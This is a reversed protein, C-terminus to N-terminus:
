RITELFATPLALRAGDAEAIAKATAIQRATFRNLVGTTIREHALGFRIAWETTPFEERQQEITDLISLVAPLHRSTFVANTCELCVWPPVPCPAGPKSAWPSAFFDTCSSVWVDTAGSLADTVAEPALEGEGDDLRDGEDDLVVPAPLTIALAQTLGAEVAADHIEDHASIDAYHRGAVQPTHGSTFDPLVGGTSLYLKSKYTKRLRRLDLSRLPAGDRDTLSGLGCEALFQKRHHTTATPRHGYVPAVQGTMQNVPVFLDDVDALDRARQGLRMALRIVGGPTRLNGGDRVRMSKDWAGHARRKLYQVSVYGKAPSILCGTKLTSICEPEMGTQCGLLIQFRIVDNLSLYLRANLRRMRGHELVGPIDQQAPVLPGRHAIYWCINELADWGHLDPDRGAVALREGELIRDRVRGVESLAAAELADFVPFPYADLPRESGQEVSVPLDLRQRFAHDFSARSYQETRQLLRCLEQMRKRRSTSSAQRRVPLRAEYADLLDPELDGLDIEEGFEPCMMRTFLVFDRLTKVHRRLVERRRHTEIREVDGVVAKAFPRVLRPVGIDSLDVEEGPGSPMPVTFAILGLDPVSASAEVTDAPSFSVRRPSM